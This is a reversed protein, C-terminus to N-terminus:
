CQLQSLVGHSEVAVLAPGVEFDDPSEPAPRGTLRAPWGAGGAFAVHAFRTPFGDGRVYAAVM